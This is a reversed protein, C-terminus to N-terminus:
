PDVGSGQPDAPEGLEADTEERCVRLRLSGAAERAQAVQDQSLDRAISNRVAGAEADGRSAALSYWAYAMALDTEGIPAIGALFYLAIDSESRADACVSVLQADFLAKRQRVKEAKDSRAALDRDFWHPVAGAVVIDASKDEIWSSCQSSKFSLCDTRLRYAHGAEAEFSLSREFWGYTTPSYKFDITHRGPALRTSPHFYRAFARPGVSQGDIETVEPSQQGGWSAGGWDLTALQADPQQPEVYADAPVCAATVMVGLVCVIM